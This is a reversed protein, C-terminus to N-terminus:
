KAFQEALQALTNHLLKGNRDRELRPVFHLPRPLFLSEMKTALAARIIGANLTPAVVFACLRRDIQDESGLLFFSGDEVGPIDLLITNLAQLSSRKGAINIIDNTRGHLVFECPSEVAIRDGMMIPTEIHGGSVWARESDDQDPRISVGDFCHWQAGELTRRTAVQGSETSGYIEHVQAGLTQEVQEALEDPLPATASLVLECAPQARLPQDQRALMLARLHVPTTVLLRPAPVAQLAAEVDAPFFPREAVVVGGSQLALHVTSEFGYSHQGPVTGVITWAASPKGFLREAEVQGSRAISGWTRPHAQPNGTSGSTFLIAALQEPMFAPIRPALAQAASVAAHEAPYDVRLFAFQAENSDTVCYLEPYQIALQQLTHPLHNNPLVSIQGRKMAAAFCVAFHYRDHCGNLVYRAAPLLTALADVDACFQALNITQGNRQAVIDNPRTHLLYPTM